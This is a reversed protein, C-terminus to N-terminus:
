RLVYCPTSLDGDSCDTGGNTLGVAPMATPPTIPVTGSLSYGILPDGPTENFVTADTALINGCLWYGMEDRGAKVIEASSLEHFLNSVLCPRDCGAGGYNPACGCTLQGFNTEDDECAQGPSGFGPCQDVSPLTNQEVCENICGGNYSGYITGPGLYAGNKYVGADNTHRVLVWGVSGAPLSATDTSQTAVCGVVADSPNSALSTVTAISQAYGDAAAVPTCDNWQLPADNAGDWLDARTVTGVITPTDPLVACRFQSHHTMGEFGATAGYEWFDWGATQPDSSPYTRRVCESWYAPEAGAVVEDYDFPVRNVDLGGVVDEPYDSFGRRKERIHYIGEVLTVGTTAPPTVTVEEFWSRYLEVFHALAVFAPDIAGVTSGARTQLADTLGDRNFDAITDVCAKTLSNLQEARLLSGGYAPLTGSFYQRGLEQPDDIIGSEYLDFSGLGALSLQQPPSYKGPDNELVATTARYLRCRTNKVILPDSSEIAPRAAIRVWGDNDQDCPQARPNLGEEFYFDAETQCVCNGKISATPEWAGTEGSGDCLCVACYQLNGSTDNVAVTGNACDASCFADANPGPDNCFEGSAECGLDTCTVAARCAGADFIFGTLCAGCQPTLNVVECMRNEAACPLQDCDTLLVCTSGTDIFGTKCDTCVAFGGTEECNRNESNCAALISEPDGQACNSVKAICVNGVWDFGADCELLCVADVATTAAQCKQNLVCGIDPCSLETRCIKTTGDCILDTDCTDGAICGCALAGTTCVACSGANCTAGTGYDQVCDAESACPGCTESACLEGAACDAVTTCEPGGGPTDSSVKKGCAGLFFVIAVAMLARPLGGFRQPSLEDM